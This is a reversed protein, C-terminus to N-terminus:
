RAPSRRRRSWSSASASARRHHPQPPSLPAGAAGCRAAARLGRCREGRDTGDAGRQRASLRVDIGSAIVAVTAGAALAGEHAATDIGRALGSVVVLGAEALEQGLTKALMRGHASANRAGVIAVAPAALLAPEGLVALLPPPDAIEALRAPYDPETRAILHAGLAQLAELEAEAEDRRCRRWREGGAERMLRPLEEYARRATGFREM